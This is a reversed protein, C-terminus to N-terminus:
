AAVEERERAEIEDLKARLRLRQLDPVEISKASWYATLKEFTDKATVIEASRVRAQHVLVAELKVSHAGMALAQGEVGAEDVTHLDEPKIRYRIRVLAGNLDDPEVMQPRETTWDLEILVIRRAPLEVFEVRGEEVHVLNWGKTEPEGLNLRNMSGSYGVRGWSQRKHIHSLHVYAAGTDVLDGPAIEVTQGILVQGTSTEAGAVQLHGVLIPVAGERKVRTVESGIAVLLSRAAAITRSTTEDATVEVGLQAVLHSKSFWPIGLCAVRWGSGGFIVASGPVVTPRDLIAIRHQGHLLSFLDLDGEVDHNGKVGFVPAIESAELLFEALANREAPSSKADFFDGGHCILQVDAARAQGLFARHVALNDDLRNRESLHSDGICAIRIM